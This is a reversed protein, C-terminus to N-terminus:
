RSKEKPEKSLSTYSAPTNSSKLKISGTRKYKVIIEKRTESIEGM